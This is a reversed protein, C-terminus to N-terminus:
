EEDGPDYFELIISEGDDDIATRVKLGYAKATRHALVRFSRAQGKFYESGTKREQPGTPPDKWLKIPKSADFGYENEGVPVMWREWPYIPPRGQVTPFEDVYEAMAM